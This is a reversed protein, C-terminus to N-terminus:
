PRYNRGNGCGVYLGEAGALGNDEVAKLVDDVFLVPHEGRYRGKAYEADWSAAAENERM